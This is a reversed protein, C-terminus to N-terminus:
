SEGKRRARFTLLLHNSVVRRCFGRRHRLTCCCAAPIGKSRRSKLLRRRKRLRVRERGRRVGKCRRAIAGRGERRLRRGVVGERGCALLLRSQPRRLRRSDEARRLWGKSRRRSGHLSRGRHLCHKSARRRVLSLVLTSRIARMRLRRRCARLTSLRLPSGPRWRLGARRDRIKKLVPLLRRRRM